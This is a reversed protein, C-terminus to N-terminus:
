DLNEDIYKSMRSYDSDSLSDKNAQLLAKATAKDIGSDVDELILSYNDTSTKADIKVPKPTESSGSDVPKNMNSPNTPDKDWALRNIANTNSNAASSSSTNANQQSISNNAWSIANAIGNQEKIRDFEQQWRQDAIKDQGQTYEFEQNAQTKQGNAFTGTANGYTYRNLWDQQEEAKLDKGQSNYVGALELMNENQTNQQNIQDAYEQYKKAIMQPLLDNNAYNTINKQGAVEAVVGSQSNGIGRHGLNVLAQNTGRNTDQTFSNVQAQYTPDNKIANVDYTFPQTPQMMKSEYTDYLSDRKSTVQNGKFKSMASDLGSQGARIYGDAGPTGQMFNKGQLNVTGPQGNAGAQYTVDEDKYGLNKLYSRVMQSTEAM